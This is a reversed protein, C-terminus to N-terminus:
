TLSFFFIKRGLTCLPCPASRVMNMCTRNFNVMQYDEKDLYIPLCQPHKAVPCCKIGREEEFQTSSTSIIDHNLFQGWLMKLLSYFSYDIVDPHAFNSLSRPTPLPQGTVSLTRPMSIGDKYAPPLLRQQCSFSSGWDPFYLNNCKGDISRYKSNVCNFGKVGNYSKKCIPDVKAHEPIKISPLILSVELPTM